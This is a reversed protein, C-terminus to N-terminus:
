ATKIPHARTPGVISNVRRSVVVKRVLQRHCARQNRERGVIRYAGGSHLAGFWEVGPWLARDYLRMKLHARWRVRAISAVAVVLELMARESKEFLPPAYRGLQGPALAVPSAGLKRNFLASDRAATWRNTHRRKRSVRLM